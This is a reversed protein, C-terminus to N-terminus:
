KNIISIKQMWFWAIICGIIYYPFDGWCFSTGIITRGLFFSRIYELFYPHWLQLIELFCTVSFVAITIKTIYKKYPFFLFIILCWFIEYLIGVAYNNIWEMGKGSYLKFLFGSPTIIILSFIVWKRILSYKSEILM